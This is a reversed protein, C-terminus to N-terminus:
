ARVNYGFVVDCAVHPIEINRDLHRKAALFDINGNKCTWVWSAVGTAFVAAACKFVSCVVDVERLAIGGCRCEDELIGRAIRNYAWGIRFTCNEVDVQHVLVFDLLVRLRKFDLNEVVLFVISKGHGQRCVRRVGAVKDSAWECCDVVGLFCPIRSCFNREVCAVGDLNDICVRIVFVVNGLLCEKGFGLGWRWYLNEGFIAVAVVLSVLQPNRERVLKDISVSQIADLEKDFTHGIGDFNREYCGAVGVLAFDDNRNVRAEDFLIWTRGSLNRCVDVVALRCVGFRGLNCVANEGSEFANGNEFSRIVISLEVGHHYCEGFGDNKRGQVFPREGYCSSRAHWCNDTVRCCRVVALAPLVDDASIHVIGKNGDSSLCTCSGGAGKGDGVIAQVLDIRQTTCRGHRYCEYRARNRDIM